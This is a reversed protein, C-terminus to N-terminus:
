GLCIGNRVLLGLVMDLYISPRRVDWCVSIIDDAAATIM